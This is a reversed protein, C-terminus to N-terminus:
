IPWSVQRYAADWFMWEYRATTAFHRMASAQAARSAPPGVEDTLDLVAQVAQGFEEGGYTDIWRAYLPDPSSRALLERGVERYIWYCPLVAALGDAFSGTACTAVLYSTYALTAPAPASGTSAVETTGLDDLLGGHLSQEVLIANAAHQAFLATAEPHPARAAVLALARAYERLYHSDQLVYFQFASRDLTGDTLGGLFPHALIAAYTPEAHRWLQGTFSTTISSHSV